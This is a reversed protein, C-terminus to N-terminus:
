HKIKYGNYHTILSIKITKVTNDSLDTLLLSYNNKLSQMKRNSKKQAKSNPTKSANIFQRRVFEGTSKKVFCLEFPETNQKIENLAYAISIKDM